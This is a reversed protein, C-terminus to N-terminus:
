KSQLTSLRWSTPMLFERQPLRHLSGPSIFSSTLEAPLLLAAVLLRAVLLAVDETRNLM